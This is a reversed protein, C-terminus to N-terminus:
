NLHIFGMPQNALYMYVHINSDMHPFNVIHFSDWKDFVVMTFKRDRINIEFDLYSLRSDTEM